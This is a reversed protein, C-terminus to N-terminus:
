VFPMESDIGDPVNIFGQSNNNPVEGENIVDFDTIMIPFTVKDNYENITFFGNKIKITAKHNVEVGKKFRVPYYKNNWSGDTNKSSVGMSYNTYPTGNSSVNDKRFIKVGKDDSVVKAGM